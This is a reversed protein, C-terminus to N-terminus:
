SYETILVALDPVLFESFIIKCEKKFIIWQNYKQKIREFRRLSIENEQSYGPVIYGPGAGLELFREVIHMHSNEYAGLLGQNFHKAGAEILRNVIHLHGADASIQLYDVRDPYLELLKNLEELNGTQCAYVVESM